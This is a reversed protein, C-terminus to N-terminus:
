IYLLGENFNRKFDEIQIGLLNLYSWINENMEKLTKIHLLHLDEDKTPYASNCAMIILPYDEGFLSVAKEIEEETSMGTALMVPKNEKKIRLINMILSYQEHEQYNGRSFVGRKM